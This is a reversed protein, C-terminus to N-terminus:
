TTNSSLLRHQHNKGVKHILPLLKGNADHGLEYHTKKVELAIDKRRDPNTYKGVNSKKAEEM